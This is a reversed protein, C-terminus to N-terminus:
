LLATDQETVQAGKQALKGNKATRLWKQIDTNAKSPYHTRALTITADVLDALLETLSPPTFRKSPLLGNREVEQMDRRRDENGFELQIQEYGEWVDNRYGIILVRPRNQPVGYNKAHVLDWECHYGDIAKFAKLM